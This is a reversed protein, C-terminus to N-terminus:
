TVFKDIRLYEAAHEFNFCPKIHLRETLWKLEKLMKIHPCFLVLM